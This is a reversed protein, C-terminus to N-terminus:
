LFVSMPNTCYYGYVSHLAKHYIITIRVAKLIFVSSALSTVGCISSVLTLVQVLDLQSNNTVNAFICKKVPLTYLFNGKFM